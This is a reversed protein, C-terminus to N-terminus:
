SFSKCGMFAAKKQNDFIEGQPVSPTFAMAAAFLAFFSVIQFSKM